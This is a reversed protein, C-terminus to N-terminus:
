SCIAGLSYSTRAGLLDTHMRASASRKEDGPWALPLLLLFNEGRKVNRHDVLRGTEAQIHM